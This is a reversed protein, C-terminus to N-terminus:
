IATSFMIHASAAQLPYTYYMPATTCRHLELQGTISCGQEIRGPRVLVREGHETSRVYTTAARRGQRSAQNTRVTANQIFFLHRWHYDLMSDATAGKRAVYMVIRIALRKHQDPVFLYREHESEPAGRPVRTPPVCVNRLFNQEEELAYQKAWAPLGGMQRASRRDQLPETYGDCRKRRM